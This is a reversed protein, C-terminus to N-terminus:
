INAWLKAIDLNYSYIHLGCSTAYLNGIELTPREEKIIGKEYAEYAGVNISDRTYEMMRVLGGLNQPLGSIADWSRFLCKLNLKNDKIKLLIQRLCETSGKKSDDKYPWDYRQLGEACGITISCHNNGYGEKIFHKICWDLQNLRTGRPIGKHTLNIRKKGGKVGEVFKPMGVIWSSYEYHEKPKLSGDMLYDWFYSEIKKRDTSVPVGGRAVPALSDGVVRETPNTVILNADDFELRYEGKYSGSDIKYPRGHELASIIVMSYLEDLNKAKITVNYPLPIYINDGFLIKSKGQMREQLNTINDFFIETM